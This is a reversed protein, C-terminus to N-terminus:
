AELECEMDRGHFFFIIERAEVSRCPRRSGRGVMLNCLGRPVKEDQKGLAAGSSGSGSSGSVSRSKKGAQNGERRRCSFNESRVHGSM